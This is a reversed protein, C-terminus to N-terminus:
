HALALCQLTCHAPLYPLLAQKAAQMTAGTTVVDDLLVIRTPISPMVVPTAVTFADIVNKERATKEPQVQPPTERQRKLLHTNMQSELQAAKLITVIQNHGRERERKKGLPIPIFLIPSNQANNWRQLLSGLLLAAHPNHHFKNERIAAQVAPTHYHSLFITEKFRQPQLYAAWEEDTVTKLLRADASPPFLLDILVTLLEPM